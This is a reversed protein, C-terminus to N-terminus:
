RYVETIAQDVDFPEHVIMLKTIKFAPEYNSYTNRSFNRKM